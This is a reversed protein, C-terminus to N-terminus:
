AQGAALPAAQVYVRAAMEADMMLIGRGDEKVLEFRRVNKEANDEEEVQENVFWQLFANTKHDKEELSADVIKYISGTVFKEHELTLRLAEGVSAFDAQPADIRELKVRGGIRNIYNFFIMAHDREEQAQVRFWNAFGSLNQATLYAEISLYLYASFFEKNLQDNLLKQIRDSVM